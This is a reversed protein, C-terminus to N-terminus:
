GKRATEATLRDLLVSIQELAVVPHNDLPSVEPTRASEASPTGSSTNPRRTESTFFSAKSESAQAIQDAIRSSLTDIREIQRPDFTEV